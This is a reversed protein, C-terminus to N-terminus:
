RGEGALVGLLDPACSGFCPHRWLRLGRVAQEAAERQEPALGLEAYLATRQYIDLEALEHPDLPLGDLPLQVAKM